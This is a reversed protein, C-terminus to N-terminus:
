REGGGVEAVPVTQSGGESHGEAELMTIERPPFLFGEVTGINGGWGQVRGGDAKKEGRPPLVSPCSSAQGSVSNQSTLYHRNGM